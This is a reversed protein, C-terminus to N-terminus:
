SSASLVASAAARPVGARRGHKALVDALAALCLMVHTRSSSAGMRGIRWAKGKFAGLGGGIELGYQALLAKRVRLDDVGDPIRVLTLQPLREDPPVPLELGLAELGACLARGHLAHRAFRAELGEDLALRLAEHLAYLM